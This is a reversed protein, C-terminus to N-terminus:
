GNSNFRFYRHIANLFDYDLITHSQVGRKAANLPLTGFVDSKIDLVDAYETVNEGVVIRRSRKFYGNLPIFVHYNLRAGGFVVCNQCAFASGLIRGCINAGLCMEISSSAYFLSRSSASIVVIEKDTLADVGIFGMAKIIKQAFGLNFPIGQGVVIDGDLIGAEIMSTGSVRLAFLQRGGVNRKDFPYAIYGEHNEVALIPLGATVKGIVPIMPRPATDNGAVLSDVRLTRSKGDEKQIYGKQELRELCTHVTSTSRINLASCIDRISPSYGRTRINEKIYDFVLQEKPELKIM